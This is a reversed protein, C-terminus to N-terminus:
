EDERASRYTGRTWKFWTTLGRIFSKVTQGTGSIRSGFYIQTCRGTYFLFVDLGSSRELHFGDIDKAPWVQKAKLIKEISRNNVFLCHSGWYVPFTEGESQYVNTSIKHSELPGSGLCDFMIVDFQRDFDNVMRQAVEFFDARCVFDDEVIVTIGEREEIAELALSHAIWLGVVGKSRIPQESLYQQVGGAVYKQQALNNVDYAVGRIWHHRYPLKRLLLKLLSRRFFDGPMNIYLIRRIGFRREPAMSVSVKETVSQM